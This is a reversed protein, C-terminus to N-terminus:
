AALRLRYPGWVKRKALKTWYLFNYPHQPDDRNLSELMEPTIPCGFEAFRKADGAVDMEFAYLRRMHEMLHPSIGKTRQSCYLGSSGREAGARSVVVLAGSGKAMGNGHFHDATEDVQVLQPRGRRSDELFADICEDHVEAWGKTSVIATRHGLRFADRMEDPSGVLVSDPVYQGHDWNKYMRAASMGNALWQARYRPKTDSILRRGKQARYRNLFETGLWDSLTTKGVQTGGALFASERERLSIQSLPIRDM